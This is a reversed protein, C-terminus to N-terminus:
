IGRSIGVMSVGVGFLEVVSVSVVVISVIACVVGSSSSVVVVVVVAACNNKTDAASCFLRCRYTHM